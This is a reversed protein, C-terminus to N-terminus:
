KETKISGDPLVIKIPRGLKRAYRVTSWTGSRLQEADEGPCAILMDTNNVINKNRVLYPLPEHYWNGTRNARKTTNIPPHIVIYIGWDEAEDNAQADAGICDGHHLETINFSRLIDQFSSFQERTM